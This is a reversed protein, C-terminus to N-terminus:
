IRVFVSSEALSEAMLDNYFLERRFLLNYPFESLCRMRYLTAGSPCPVMLDPLHWIDLPAERRLVFCCHHADM